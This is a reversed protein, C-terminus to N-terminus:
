PAEALVAYFLLQFSFNPFRFNYVLLQFDSISFHTETKQKRLKLNPNTSPPSPRSTADASQASLPTGRSAPFLDPLFPFLRCFSHLDRALRVFPQSNVPV